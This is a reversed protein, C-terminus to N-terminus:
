CRELLCMACACQRRVSEPTAKFTSPLPWHQFTVLRCEYKDLNMFPCDPSHNKHEVRAVGVTAAGTAIFDSIKAV